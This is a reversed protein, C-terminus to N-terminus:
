FIVDAKAGIIPLVRKKVIAEDSEKAIASTVEAQFPLLIADAVADGVTSM